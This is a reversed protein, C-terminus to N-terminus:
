SRVRLTVQGDHDLWQLDGAVRTLWDKGRQWATWWSVASGTDAELRRDSRQWDATCASEGPSWTAQLADLGTLGRVPEGGGPPPPTRRLHLATLACTVLARGRLSGPRAATRRSDLGTPPLAHLGAALSTWAVSWDQDLSFAVTGPPAWVLATEGPLLVAGPVAVRGRLWRSWATGGVVRSSYPGPAVRWAAQGGDYLLVPGSARDSTCARLDRLPPTADAAPATLVLRHPYATPCGNRTTVAVNSTTSGADATCGALLVVLVAMLSLLSAGRAGAHM